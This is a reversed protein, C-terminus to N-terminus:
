IPCCLFVDTELSYGSIQKISTQSWDRGDRKKRNKGEREEKEGATFHSSLDV